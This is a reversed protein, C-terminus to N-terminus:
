YNISGVPQKRKNIGLQGNSTEGAPPTSNATSGSVPNSDSAVWSGVAVDSQVGSATKTTLVSINDEDDQIEVVNATNPISAKTTAGHITGVSFDDHFSFAMNPNVHKMAPHRADGEQMLQKVWDQQEFDAIAAIKTQTQPSTVAKLSLDWTCDKIAHLLVQSFASDSLKQQFWKGGPNTEKWCFHCWAAIQVSM